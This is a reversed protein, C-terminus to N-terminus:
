LASRPVLLTGEFDLGVAQGTLKMGALGGTGHLTFRTTQIGGNLGPAILAIDRGVFAGSRGDLTSGPLNLTAPEFIVRSAASLNGSPTAVERQVIFRSLGEINGTNQFVFDMGHQFVAGAPNTTATGLANLAVFTASIEIEVLAAGGNAFAPSGAEPEPAAITRECALLGAASALLLLRRPRRRRTPPQLRGAPAIPSM